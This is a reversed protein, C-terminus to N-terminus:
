KARIEEFGIRNTRVEYRVYTRNQAILPGVVDGFGGQNLDALVKTPLSESNSSKPCHAPTEPKKWEEPENGDALFIEQVSKWTEWVRPAIRDAIKTPDEGDPKGRAGSQAPWNLAIFLQWSYAAIHKLGTIPHCEDEPVKPTVVVDLSTHPKCPQAGAPAVPAFSLAVSGLGIILWEARM